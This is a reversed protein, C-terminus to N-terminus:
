EIRPLKAERIRPRSAPWTRATSSTVMSKRRPSTSPSTPSDPLPLVVSPRVIRPSTERSRPPADLELAALDRLHRLALQAPQPALHLDHELIRMGRQVRRHRDLLEDLVRKLDVLDSGARLSPATHRLRQRDDPQIGRLLEHLLVRGVEGAALLLPDHDRARDDEVRHQEDGVLGDRHEVHAHPGFIRSSISYRL